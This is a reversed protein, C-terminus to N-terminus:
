DNFKKVASEHSYQTLIEIHQDLWHLRNLMVAKMQAISEEYNGPNRNDPQLKNMFDVKDVDFRYGWVAYNRDIASGLYERTDDIYGVMEEDSLIGERLQHYRSIIRNTFDEDKVMMWFWPAQVTYFKRIFFDDEEILNVNELSNNFDWVCPKYLGNVDKYFYTSLKGTDHQLFVEALIFYDVFEGVDVYNMYGYRSKDYDFSYLAKEFKSIDREIYDKLESTLLSKGPYVVEFYTNDHLNSTYKIFNNLATEKPVASTDLGVIYGTVNRTKNPKEIDIRGEGRSVTEMMVYLGQYEGNKIVECFRVEPAYDMLEGAINMGFYNRMLTKDLFPGHLVWDDNEEMGMIEQRKNNGEIDILKVAYSKKDFWRSTNGRVKIEINSAVAPQDSPTNYTKGNDIIKMNAVVFNEGTSARTYLRSSSNKTYYPVGPIEEDTDIVVIPLHTRLKSVDVADTDYGADDEGKGTICQLPEEVDNDRVVADLHQHYRYGTNGTATQILTVGLITLCIVLVVLLRRKM